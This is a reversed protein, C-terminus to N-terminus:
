IFFRILGNTLKKVQRALKESLTNAVKRDITKNAHPFSINPIEAGLFPCLKKWGDGKTLDLILLDQPRDKFYSKVEENHNEFRTIYIKENSEPCGVGYIWKRMPTKKRGFHKVQSKIWTESDRLTLIFKSHPYKIDLEKYIIPWPSDQFADYQDVLGYAL